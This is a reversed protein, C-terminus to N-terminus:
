RRERAQAGAPLMSYLKARIVTPIEGAQIALIGEVIVDMYLYEEDHIHRLKDAIPLWVLNAMLVGWLTAVFAGAIHRILIAPDEGAAALTAILGMVTGIIGMTPSYGGMRQFLAAGQAHRDSVYNVETEALGRLVEPETGDIAFRMIKKMFPNDVTTLERELALLGNRRATTSFRVISEIAERVAYQPPFLALLIMRGMSSFQEMSTGIMAAAFTGVFVILMAPALLLGDINGGEWMFSGFVAVMGLVLGGATTIDFSRRM